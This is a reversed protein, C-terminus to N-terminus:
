SHSVDDVVCNANRLKVPGRPVNHLDFVVRRIPNRFARHRKGKGRCIGVTPLPQKGLIGRAIGAAAVVKHHEEVLRRQLRPELIARVLDVQGIRPNRGTLFVLNRDGEPWCPDFEPDVPGQHRAIRQHHVPREIDLHHLPAAAAPAALAARGAEIRGEFARDGIGPDIGPHQCRLLDGIQGRGRARVVRRRYGPIVADAGVLVHRQHDRGGIQEGIVGVRVAARGHDEPNRGLRAMAARAVIRHRVGHCVRGLPIELAIVAEGHRDAVPGPPRRLRRHADGNRRHVVCRDCRIIGAAGHDQAPRDHDVHKAIVTVHVAVHQGHGPHGIARQPRYRVVAVAGDGVRRDGASAVVTEGVCHAVARKGVRRRYCHGNQRFRVRGRDRPVIVIRYVLVRHETHGGGTDQGVIGVRVAICQAHCQYATDGVPLKHQGAVAGEAICRIRIEAPRVAELVLHSVAIATGIGASDRQGHGRHVVRGGRRVVRHLGALVLGNHNVYEAIVAVHVAIGQAHGQVAAGRVAARRDIRVAGDGVVRVRAEGAGVLEGVGDIVSVSFGVGCVDPDLDGARHADDVVCNANRLKVPGRPVNHLDFVVRRIPNRFARHRKGKGRCIGVTPLPQKGLIGRAIGAAAVVKHHEEVLRRQLRPELIARVLDVQGIRPNRGTLFVLNRDGEPWCPDFEPDVPGQHRAIRQHHVPREIDLHHLPAAAAPAALAARGAEIRGEFARDGIGPDIGPHQCRLLDGIQGRGRARVVRRRYGPIVADAGVLVHRQHDRGGIQEGIVGVRVAARGHDEPNRGLRAMAARAVIRHRVGHCVRGLPIELAIVAEGHRDAVPGPPRRLRRHADGNRRHVVCRDCRIIGAAGHDQAPRDHDVHKAIVTVHVAVHQGHGPHGIARQPRYRVVAVAGDGVRRDGASAVVTEGVCHAVARKGVRRRYCHGNQRFRVRGRDRPVIVIRYVLVRHETHGGGTDQGVIGVRVAICQAHCQYATDGM